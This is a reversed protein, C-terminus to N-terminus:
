QRQFVFVRDKVKLFPNELFRYSLRCLILSLLFTTIAKGFFVWWTSEHVGGIMAFGETFVM